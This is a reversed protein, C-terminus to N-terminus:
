EIVIIADGSNVTQGKKVAIDKIKGKRSARMENQMKMAEIIVLSQGPEVLDENKVLIDIILGPMPAKIIQDKKHGEIGASKIVSRIREDIISVEYTEGNVRILKPSILEVIYPKHDIICTIENNNRGALSLNVDEGNIMIRFDAGHEEISVKYEKEDVTVILAM